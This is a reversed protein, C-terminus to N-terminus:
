EQQGIAATSGGGGLFGGLVGAEATQELAQTFTLDPQYSLKRVISQFFEDWWEETAEYKAGNFFAKGVSKFTAKMGPALIGEIGTKGFGRTVLTTILGQALAPAQAKKFAEEDSFGQAKYAGEAEALASGYSHLGGGVAMGWIGAPGGALSPLLSMAGEGLKKAFPAGQTEGAVMDIMKADEAAIEAAGKFQDAVAKQFRDAGEEGVALRHILAPIAPGPLYKYVGSRAASESCFMAGGVGRELM